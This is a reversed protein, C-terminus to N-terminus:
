RVKPMWDSIIPQWIGPNIHRTSVRTSEGDHTWFRSTALDVDKSVYKCTYELVKETEKAEQIDVWGHPWRERRMLSDYRVYEILQPVKLKGFYDSVALIYHIHLRGTYTKSGYETVALLKRIRWGMGDILSDKWNGFTREARQLGTPPDEFVGEATENYNYFKNTPSVSRPAYTLTGFIYRVSENCQLFRRFTDVYSHFECFEADGLISKTCWMAPCIKGQASYANHNIIGDQGTMIYQRSQHRASNKYFFRTSGTRFNPELDDRRVFGM